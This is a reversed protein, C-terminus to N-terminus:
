KSDNGQRRKTESIKIRTVLSVSHGMKSKSIKAGTGPPKAVGKHHLTAHESRSVIQLNDIDDNMSDGDKHHVLEKPLLPRGIHDGMVQRSREIYGVSNPKTVYTRNYTVMVGGKWSLSKCGTMERLSQKHEETHCHGGTLTKSIKEKTGEMRAQHGMLFMNWDQGYKWSKNVLGGCGCACKPPLTRKM